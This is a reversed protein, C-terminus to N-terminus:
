RGKKPDENQILTFLKTIILGDQKGLRLRTSLCQYHLVCLIEPLGRWFTTFSPNFLGFFLAGFIM